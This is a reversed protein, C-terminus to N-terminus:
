KSTVFYITVYRLIQTLCNNSLGNLVKLNVLLMLALLVNTRSGEYIPQQAKKLLTIDHIDDFNNDEDIPAFIDRVLRNTGDDPEVINNTDDELEMSNVQDHHDEIDMRGDEEVQVVINRISTPVTYEKSLM